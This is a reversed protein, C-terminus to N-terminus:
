SLDKTNDANNNVQEMHFSGNVAPNVIVKVSDDSKVTAPHIGNQSPTVHRGFAHTGEMAYYDGIGHEVLDAGALEDELSMRIGLLYKYIVLQLFPVFSVKNADIWSVFKGM